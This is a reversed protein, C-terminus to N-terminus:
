ASNRQDANKEDHTSERVGERSARDVTSSLSRPQARLRSGIGGRERHRCAARERAPRASRVVVSDGAAHWPCASENSKITGPAVLPWSGTSDDALSRHECFVTLSPSIAILSWRIGCHSSSAGYQQGPARGGARGLTLTITPRAERRAPNRTHVGQRNGREQAAGGLQLHYSLAGDCVACTEFALLSERYRCNVGFGKVGAAERLLARRGDAVAWAFHAGM